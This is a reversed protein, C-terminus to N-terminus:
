KKQWIASESEDWREALDKPSPQLLCLSIFFITQAATM